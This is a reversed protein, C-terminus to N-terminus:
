NPLAMAKAVDVLPAGTAANALSSMGFYQVGAGPFYRTTVLYFLCLGFGAIIGCVAGTATARKWWVGMVLAPFNGAMALSFAWGVMALIDGPKTAALAAAVVAVILLLARAIMLRRVTPANPDFMKYYVDHSLANAIALLLGDATSLAAALGGAAVLGSIVYPLGAIEPTSLVIVDTNIVFDQLRVVGPHGAIAKCAAVIADITSANKGCIQVLGLEGWNFIWPRIATLDRGIVNTYVELKSFAAYAPASFYLLFIFLLSWAVSQRAARVSPTTFYRMLIHPLSATGVMMCLIIAFFNLPTYNIFPQIHPKLSAVTALGDKLMQGERATIDAIAQGYTLEPIPIGYRKTSLIVIPTLYAIILVIYQAIQTWTVARMGGLMSCLLIGALGVYVAVEFPMGLFRSAIIGTGYVQATVYTFSCCVLVIVALFRAFNGGFRYAMFDPVTYAGFKRLYPGVLISVLVFGGTWGLVWALGDYGLLCLTGAMGVFSAASMWDAGTAMGNYFAPVRRGAVYYESVQATRSAIGIIAYVALTFFVFLYGLYKNPVGVQELVALLIIFALFGGTYMGYMRGLNKIFDSPAASQAQTAM